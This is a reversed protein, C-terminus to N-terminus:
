FTATMRLIQWQSRPGFIKVIYDLNIIIFESAPEFFVWVLDYFALLRRSITLVAARENVHHTGRQKQELPPFEQWLLLVLYWVLLISPNFQCKDHNTPHLQSM